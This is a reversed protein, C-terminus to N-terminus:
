KLKLQRNQRVSQHNETDIKPTPLARAHYEGVELLYWSRTVRNSEQLVSGTGILFASSIFLTIESLVLLLSFFFFFTQCAELATRNGTSTKRMHELM